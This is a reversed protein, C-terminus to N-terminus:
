AYLETEVRYRIEYEDEGTRYIGPWVGRAKLREVKVIAQDWTM